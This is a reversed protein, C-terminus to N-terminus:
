HFIKRAMKAQTRMFITIIVKTLKEKHTTKNSIKKAKANCHDVVVELDL